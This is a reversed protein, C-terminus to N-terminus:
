ATSRLHRNRGDWHVHTTVACTGEERRVTYVDLRPVQPFCGWLAHGTMVFDLDLHVLLGMLDAITPDDVKAFADDLLILRLQRQGDSLGSLYGDAAAFLTVYSVFRTEGQSLKARTSLRREQGPAPGLITAAVTHWRRYDLANTLHSTYGASPDAAYSEDVRARLLDTLEASHQSSRVVDATRVLEAIRALAPSDDALHWSLRVGIGNSTRLNRLSQNMARVLESAQNIRRRLEEAVSGLVFTTFVERERESLAARGSEVRHRLAAAAGALTVDDGTGQVSLVAVGDDVRYATDLQGSVERDFRQFASLVANESAPQAPRKIASLVSQAGARVSDAREPREITAMALDTTARVLGPLSIRRILRNAAEIMLNRQAAASEDAHKAEIEVARLNGQARVYIHQARDAAAVAEQHAHESRALEAEAQRVSLDIAEHQAAVEAAFDHWERWQRDARLEADDRRRATDSAALVDRGLLDRLLGVRDFQDSLEQCRDAATRATGVANALSEASTPLGHPACLDEHTKVDRAWGARATTARQAAARAAAASALAREAARRAVRRAAFLDASRPAASVLAELRQQLQVIETTRVARQAVRADLDAFEASIQTLREQRARARAAAGIHRAAPVDHRGRLPGHRWSGDLAVSTSSDDDLGICRLVEDVVGPDLRGAPDPRLVQALPRRAATGPTLLTTGNEARLAGDPEVRATLLGSALLAAEVGAREHESLEDAFDVVRWLPVGPRGSTLWPPEPPYPDQARRLMVAEADLAHRVADDDAAQRRLEVREVTIQERAARAHREAAGDLPALDAEAEGVLSELDALLPGVHPDAAWDIPGLVDPSRAAWERWARALEVAASDRDAANSHASAVDAGAQQEAAGSDAELRAVKTEEAALRRAEGLRRDALERRRAAAQGATQAQTRAGALDDPTVAVNPAAPRPVADPETDRALRVVVEVPEITQESLSVQEPLATASLSAAFLADRARHLQTAGSDVCSRLEDIRENVRDIAVQHDARAGAAVGLSVDAADALTQVRADRQFLDDAQRFIGRQRIAFIANQLERAQAATQAAAIERAGVDARLQHTQAIRQAANRAAADFDDVRGLTDTATDVLVGAAYRRYVALLDTVDALAKELRQQSQRLTTLGDLQEGARSLTQEDLPPLSDSLIQPLRGEDIRNGVDPSRLTHLLQLLGAYRDRGSDGHLGFVATRVRERHAEASDTIAEAGILEGLADRTLPERRENLLMLDHDVRLATTFYWVHTSKASRGHRVLAGITLWDDVGALELWLYGTRNTQEGAGVRMLEDLNVKGAGTADMKRRDADLLFPLLMELARSKGSGNTGRLIMRGGSLDFTNEVYHWVNVIGARSLRWRDPFQKPATM